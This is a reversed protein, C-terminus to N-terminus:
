EWGPRSVRSPCSSKGNEKAIAMKEWRPEGEFAQAADVQFYASHGALSNAIEEIPQLVGTENNAQMVSVLLTDDRMADRIAEHDVRGDSNPPELTLTFGHEGM